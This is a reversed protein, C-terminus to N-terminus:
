CGHIMSSLCGSVILLLHKIICEDMNNEIDKVDISNAAYVLCCPLITHQCVPQNQSHHNTDQSLDTAAKNPACSSIRAFRM